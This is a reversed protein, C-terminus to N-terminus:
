GQPLLPLTTYRPRLILALTHFHRLTSPPSIQAGGMRFFLLAATGFRLHPASACPHLAPTQPGFLGAPLLGHIGSLAPRSQIPMLGAHSRAHPQQLPAP